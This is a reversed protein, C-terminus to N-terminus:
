LVIETLRIFVLEKVFFSGANFRLSRFHATWKFYETSSYEMKEFPLIKKM